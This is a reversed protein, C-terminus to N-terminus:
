RERIGREGKGRQNQQIELDLGRALLYRTSPIKFDVSISWGLLGVNVSILRSGLHGIDDRRIEESALLVNRASSHHSTTVM